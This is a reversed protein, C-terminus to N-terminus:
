PPALSAVAAPRAAHLGAAARVAASDSVVQAVTEADVATGGYWAAEFAATIAAFPGRAAPLRDAVDRLHEGATRGPREQVIGVSALDALVERYRCRLADRWRGAAEHEAAEHAWDIAPRGVGGSLAEGLSRSRRVTVLLWIVLGILVAVVVVLVIAGVRGTGGDLTEFFRGIRELVWQLGRQLLGPRAPQFEPRALVMQATDHALEADVAPGGLRAAVEAQAM